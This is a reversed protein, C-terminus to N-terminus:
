VYQIQNQLTVPQKSNKQLTSFSAYTLDPNAVYCLADLEDDNIDPPVDKTLGRKEGKEFTAWFLNEIKHMAEAVGPENILFYLQSGPPKKKEPHPLHAQLALRNNLIQIRQRPTFTDSPRIILGNQIYNNAFPRGTQEDTKFTHFDCFTAKIQHLPSKPREIYIGKAAQKPNPHPIRENDSELIIDECREEITRQSESYFKYVYRTNDPAIAMWCCATVHGWGPDLGRFLILPQPFYKKQIDVFSSALAHHSPSYNKILIPSNTYFLGKIRAEGEPKGKWMKLLDDKKETPLIYTPTSEIGFGSFIYPHLPLHEEGTYVRYAIAAKSATNRAEYPTYDWSGFAPYKFRQRIENFVSQPMGETMLIGDVAAAAWTTDAADYSKFIVTVEQEPTPHLILLTEYPSYKHMMDQPIWKKWEPMLTETQTKTTPAGVWLTRKRPSPSFKSPLLIEWLNRYQVNCLEGVNLKPDPNPLGRIKAEERIKQLASIPPRPITRFTRGLHDTFSQFMQWNPDNPIIWLLANIIASATKGTRNADFDVIFDIGYIWANLKLTQEYSPQFWSIPNARKSQEKLEQVKSKVCELLADFQNPFHARSSPDDLIDTAEIFDIDAPNRQYWPQM